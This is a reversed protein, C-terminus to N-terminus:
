LLDGYAKSDVFHRGISTKADPVLLGPPGPQQQPPNLAIGDGLDAIAARIKDDAQAKEAKARAKGVEAKLRQAETLRSQIEAREADTFDRGAEDAADAIERAAKLCAQM